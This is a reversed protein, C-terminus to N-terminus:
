RFTGSTSNCTYNQVGVGLLVHNPASPLPDLSSPLTVASVPVKCNSKSSGGRRSPVALAAAALFLPLLSLVIMVLQVQFNSGSFLYLINSARVCPHGANPSKIPYGKVTGRDVASLILAGVNLAVQLHVITHAFCYLISYPRMSVPLCYLVGCEIERTPM